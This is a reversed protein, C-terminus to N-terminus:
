GLRGSKRKERELEVYLQGMSISTTLKFDSVNMGGGIASGMLGNLKHNPTINAGTPIHMLEPGREGVWALGGPINQGGSAFGRYKKTPSYTEGSGSSNGRLTSSIASGIVVLAAGAAILGIASQGATLPNLLGKTLKAFASGAIGYAVMQKGLTSLFNGVSKILGAGFEGATLDGSMMQGIGEAFQIVVDSQFEQVLNQMSNVFENYDQVAKLRKADAEAFIEGSLRDGEELVIQLDDIRKQEAEVEAKAQAEISRIIFEGTAKKTEAVKKAWEEINKIEQKQAVTLGTKPAAIRAKLAVIRNNIDGGKIASGDLKSLEIIRKRIEAISDLAADSDINIKVAEKADDPMGKMLLKIQGLRSQLYDYHKKINQVNPDNDGYIGEKIAKIADNYPRILANISNATATYEKMLATKGKGGLDTNSFKKVDVGSQDSAIVVNRILDPLRVGPSALRAVFEQWSKSTVFKDIQSIADAAGEVITQFFKALPKDETVLDTLANKFRGVSAQLSEVKEVTQIGFTKEIQEAFFPLVESSILKGAKMMKMLEDNSMSTKGTMEAAAKAMIAMAGPLANGLQRRLEESQVTGKDMMQQVAYLASKVKDQSLHLVAGAKSLSYFVKEAVELDQNAAKASGIFLQYAQGLGTLELGYANAKTKLTEFRREMEESSGLLYTLSTKISDVSINQNFAYNLSQMAAAVSLFQATLDRLNEGAGSGINKLNTNAEKAKNGLDTLGGKAKDTSAKIATGMQTASTGTNNFSGKIGNLIANAQSSFNSLEGLGRKLGASMREMDALVEVTLMADAM